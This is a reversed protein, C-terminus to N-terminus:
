LIPLPGHNVPMVHKITHFDGLISYWHSGHFTLDGNGEHESGRVEFPLICALGVHVM